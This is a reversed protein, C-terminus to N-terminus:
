DLSHAPVTSIRKLNANTTCAPGLSPLTFQHYPHEPSHTLLCSLAPAASNKCNTHVLWILSAPRHCYCPHDKMSPEPPTKFASHPTRITTTTTHRQFTVRARPLGLHSRLPRSRPAAFVMITYLAMSQQISNGQTVYRIATSDYERHIMSQRTLDPLRTPPQFLTSLTSTTQKPGVGTGTSTGTSTGPLAKSKPIPPASPFQVPYDPRTPPSACILWV